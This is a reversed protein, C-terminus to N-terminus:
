AASLGGPRRVTASPDPLRALASNLFVAEGWQLDELIPRAAPDELDFSSFVVGGQEGLRLANRMMRGLPVVTFSPRVGRPLAAERTVLVRKGALEPVQVLKEPHIGIVGPALDYSLGTYSAVYRDRFARLPGHADM